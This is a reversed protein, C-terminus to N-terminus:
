YHNNKMLFHSHINCLFHSHTNRLFSSKSYCTSFLLLLIVECDKGRTVGSRKIKLCWDDLEHFLLSELAVEMLVLFILLSFSLLLRHGKPHHHCMSWMERPVLHHHHYPPPSPRTRLSHSVCPPEGAPWSHPLSRRRGPQSLPQLAGLSILVSSSEETEQPSSACWPDCDAGKCFHTQVTITVNEWACKFVCMQRSSVMVHTYAATTKSSFAQLFHAIINNGGLFYSTSFVIWYTQLNYDYQQFPQNNSM